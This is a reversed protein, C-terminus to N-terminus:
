PAERAGGPLEFAAPYHTLKFDAVRSTSKANPVRSRYAQAM